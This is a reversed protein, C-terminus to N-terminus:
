RKVNLTVANYLATGATPSASYRVGTISGDGKAGAYRGKGGIITIVGNFEAQAGKVTTQGASRMTLASGDSFTLEQNSIWTGSGNVFDTSVVFTAPLVEGDPLTATGTLRGLTMAHGPQDGIEQSQSATLVYNGRIKLTEDATAIGSLAILAISTLLIKEHHPSKELQRALRAGNGQSAGCSLLGLDTQAPAVPRIAKV